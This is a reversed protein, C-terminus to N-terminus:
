ANEGGVVLNWSVYLDEQLLQDPFAFFHHFVMMVIAIAKIYTSTKKDLVKREM